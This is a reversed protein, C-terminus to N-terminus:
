RTVGPEKYVHWFMNREADEITASEYSTGDGYDITMVDLDVTLEISPEYTARYSSADVTVADECKLSVSPPALDTTSTTTEIPQTATSSPREAVLAATSPPTSEVILVSPESQSM